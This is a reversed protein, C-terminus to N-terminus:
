AYKSKFELIKKHPIPYSDKIELKLENFYDQTKEQYFQNDEVCYGTLFSGHVAATDIGISNVNGKSNKRIRPQSDESCLHGYLVLYDGDYIDWWYQNNDNDKVLPMKKDYNFNAYINASVNHELPNHPVIGGHTFIVNGYNIIMPLSHLYDLFDKVEVGYDILNNLAWIYHSPLTDKKNTLYDIYKKEHNGLISVADYHQIADWVLHSHMGRDFLDGLFIIQDEKQPNIKKLLLHLEIGCGHIDGICYTKM